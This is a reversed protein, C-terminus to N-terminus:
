VVRASKTIVLVEDGDVHMIGREIAVEEVAFGLDMVLRGKALVVSTPSYGPFVGTWGKDTLASVSNAEACYVENGLCVVRVTM